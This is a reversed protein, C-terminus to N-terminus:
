YRKGNAGARGEATHDHRRRNYENKEILAGALDLGEAGALDFIRLLADALEVEVGRRHPLKDDMLDKRDAELAESLESHILAIREGFNRVIPAGTTPDHYWGANYSTGYALDIAAEIGKRTLHEQPSATVVAEEVNVSFEISEGDDRSHQSDIVGILMVPIMEGAKIHRLLSARHEKVDLIAFQCDLTTNKM